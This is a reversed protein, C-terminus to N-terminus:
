HNCAIQQEQLITHMVEEDTESSVEKSTVSALSDNKGAISDDASYTASISILSITSNSFSTSPTSSSSDISTDPSESDPSSHEDKHSQTM